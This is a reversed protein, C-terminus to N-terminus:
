QEKEMNYVERQKGISNNCWKQVGGKKWLLFYNKKMSKQITSQLIVVRMIRIKVWVRIKKLAWVILIGMQIYYSRIFKMVLLSNGM